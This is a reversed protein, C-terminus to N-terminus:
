LINCRLHKHEPPIDPSPPPTAPEDNQQQQQQPIDPSLLSDKLYPHAITLEQLTPMAHNCHSFLLRVNRALHPYVRPDLLFDFRERPQRCFRCEKRPCHGKNKELLKAATKVYMITSNVLQEGAEAHSAAIVEVYDNSCWGYLAGLHRCNQERQSIIEELRNEFLLNCAVLQNYCPSTSM